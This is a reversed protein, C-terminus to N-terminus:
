VHAHVVFTHTHTHPDTYTDWCWNEQTFMSVQCLVLLCKSTPLLWQLRWGEERECVCMCYMGGCVSGSALSLVPLRRLSLMHGSVCVCRRCVCVYVSRWQWLSYCGKGGACLSLVISERVCICLFVSECFMKQKYCSYHFNRSVTTHSHTDKGSQLTVVAVSFRWTQFWVRQCFRRHSELHM